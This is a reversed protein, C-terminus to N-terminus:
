TVQSKPGPTFDLDWSVASITHLSKHSKPSPVVHSRARTKRNKNRRTVRKETQRERGQKLEGEERRECEGRVKDISSKKGEILEIWQEIRVCCAM